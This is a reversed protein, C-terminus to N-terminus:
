KRIEEEERGKELAMRSEYSGERGKRSSRSKNARSRPSWGIPYELGTVSSNAMQMAHEPGECFSGRNLAKYIIVGFLDTYVKFIRGTIAFRLQLSGDLDVCIRYHAGM